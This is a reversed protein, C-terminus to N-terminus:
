GAVDSHPLSTGFHLCAYLLIHISASRRTALLCRRDTRLRTPSIGEPLSWKPLFKSNFFQLLHCAYHRRVQTLVRYHKRPNWKGNDREKQAQVKPRWEPATYNSSALHLKHLFVKLVDQDKQINGLSSNHSQLLQISIKMTQLIM